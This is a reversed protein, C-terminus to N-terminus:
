MKRAVQKTIMGSGCACELIVDDENIKSTVFDVFQKNVNRNIYKVYFPYLPAIKDWLM